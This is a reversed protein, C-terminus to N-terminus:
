DLFPRYLGLLILGVLPCLELDIRGVVEEDGGLSLVLYRLEFDVDVVICLLVEIDVVIEEEGGHRQAEFPEIKRGRSRAFLSPIEDSDASKVGLDLYPRQIDDVTNVGVSDEARGGRLWL